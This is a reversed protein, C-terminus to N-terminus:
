FIIRHDNTQHDDWYRNANKEGGDIHDPRHWPGHVLHSPLDNAFSPILTRAVVPDGASVGDAEFRRKLGRSEKDASTCCAAGM